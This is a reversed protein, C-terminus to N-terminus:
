NNQSEKSLKESILQCILQNIASLVKEVYLFNEKQTNQNM